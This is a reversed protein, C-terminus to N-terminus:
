AMAWAIEVSRADCLWFPFLCSGAIGEPSKMPNSLLVYSELAISLTVVVLWSREQWFSLALFSKHSRRDIFFNRRYITTLDLPFVRTGQWITELNATFTTPEIMLCQWDERTFLYKVSFLTKTLILTASKTFVALCYM